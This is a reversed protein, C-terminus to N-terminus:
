CTTEAVMKKPKSIRDLLQDAIPMSTMTEIAMKARDMQEIYLQVERLHKHGSIAGIQRASYGAHALRTMM